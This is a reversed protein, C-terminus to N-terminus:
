PACRASRVPEPRRAAVLRNSRPGFSRGRDASPSPDFVQGLLVPDEPVIALGVVAELVRASATDVLLSCGFGVSPSILNLVSMRSTATAVAGSPLLRIYCRHRHTGAECHTHMQERSKVRSVHVANSSLRRPASRRRTRRTRGVPWSGVYRAAPSPAATRSRAPTSLGAGSRTARRLRGDRPRSPGLGMVCHPLHGPQESDKWISRAALDEIEHIGPTSM